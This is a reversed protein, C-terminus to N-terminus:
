PAALGCPQPDSQIGDDSAEGAADGMISQQRVDLGRSNPQGYIPQRAAPNFADIHSHHAPVPVGAMSM